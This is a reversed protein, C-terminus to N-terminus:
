NARVTKCIAAFADTKLSAGGVLFGHVGGEQYLTAANAANVSGGYLVVVKRATTRDFLKTLCKEIFLRIEYIDAPTPTTGSGIAWVPEYAIILRAVQAKKLDALAISLQQELITYFDGSEDRSSEGICVVPTLKHGLAAVVRDHVAQDDVGQARRESHGIIVYTAGASRVMPASVEGTQAGTDTPWIRQTGIAIRGSPSLRALDSLYVSPPAVVVNVDKVSRLKQRISVFLKKAEALSSPNMKWNGIVYPTQQQM